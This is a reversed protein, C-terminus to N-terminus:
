RRSRGPQALADSGPLGDGDRQWRIRRRLEDEPMTTLEVGDLLVSGGTLRANRPLLRMLAIALSTKGSGSEGIIGLSQGGGELSFSIGDVARLPGRETAYELRLDTVELLALPCRSRMPPGTSASDAGAIMALHWGRYRSASDAGAIM